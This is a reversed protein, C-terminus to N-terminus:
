MVNWYTGVVNAPANTTKPLTASTDASLLGPANTLPTLNSVTNSDPASATQPQANEPVIPQVTAVNAPGNGKLSQATQTAQTKVSQVTQNAQASTAQV